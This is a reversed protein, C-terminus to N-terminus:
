ELSRPISSANEKLIKNVVLFLIVYYKAVQEWLLGRDNENIKKLFSDSINSDKQSHMKTHVLHIHTLIIKTTVTVFAAQVM